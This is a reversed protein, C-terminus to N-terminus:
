LVVCPPLCSLIHTNRQEERLQEWESAREEGHENFEMSDAEDSTDLEDVNLDLDDGTDLAEDETDLADESLLSGESRDLSVNMPPAALKRRQSSGGSVDTSSPPDPDFFCPKGRGLIKIDHCKVVPLLFNNSKVSKKLCEEFMEIIHHIVHQVDM